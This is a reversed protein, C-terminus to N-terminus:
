FIIISRTYRLILYHNYVRHYSVDIEESVPKIYYMAIVLTTNPLCEYEVVVLGYGRRM